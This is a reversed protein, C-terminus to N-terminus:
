SSLDQNVENNGNVVLRSLSYLWNEIANRTFKMRIPWYETITWVDPAEVDFVYGENGVSNESLVDTENLSPTFYEVPPLYVTVNNRLLIEWKGKLTQDM